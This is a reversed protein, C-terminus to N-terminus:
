GPLAVPFVDAEGDPEIVVMVSEADVQVVRAAVDDADVTAHGNDLRQWVQIRAHTAEALAQRLEPADSGVVLVSRIHLRPEEPVERTMARDRRFVLWHYGAIVGVTLLLALPVRIAFLTEWGATGELIDEISIALIVILSIIATLGGVGFLGILYIRRSPSSAEDSEKRALRQVRSWSRAWVPAGILLLTVALLVADGATGTEAVADPVIAQIFAVILMAIGVATAALGTAAVLYEYV